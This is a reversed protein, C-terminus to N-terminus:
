VWFSDYLVFFNSISLFNTRIVFQTNGKQFPIEAAVRHKKEFRIMDFVKRSGFYLIAVTFHYLMHLKIEGYPTKSGIILQKVTFLCHLYTQATSILEKLEHLQLFLSPIYQHDIRGLEWDSLM